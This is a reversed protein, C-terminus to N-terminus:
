PALESPVISFLVCPGYIAPTVTLPSLPMAQPVFLALDKPKRKVSSMLSELSINESM